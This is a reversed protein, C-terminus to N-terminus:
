NGIWYLIRGQPIEVLSSSFDCGHAKNADKVIEVTRNGEVVMMILMM